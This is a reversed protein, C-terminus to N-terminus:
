PKSSEFRYITKSAFEQGPKLIAEPFQPQNPSDPFHQTELCFTNRFTSADGKVAEFNGSFLQIGPEETLVEMAIGTKDGVAKAAFLLKDDGKNLVFNHDYGGGIRIQEENADIDQGIAKPQTFDFATGAVPAVDGTPILTEDVPTYSDANIQLSHKLVSGEGNLNFFAHNTVNFPSPATTQAEYDIVLEDDATVTYGVRVTVEGPYGEEGHKSVYSFVIVSETSSVVDWVQNHFGNPGGHLHNAGNNVPLVYERDPLAFRGKAIRNAYRGVTAGHYPAVTASKYERLSPYSPTVNVGKYVLEIIRAGYNCVVVTLYGGNTVTYLNTQKGNVIEQFAAANAM